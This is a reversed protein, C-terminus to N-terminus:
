VKIPFRTSALQIYFEGTEQDEQIWEAIQYYAPRLFRAPFCGERVRCYLVNSEGVRLTSPALVEPEALHKLKLLIEEGRRDVSSVVFPTDAADLLCRAGRWEVIFQGDGALRLSEYFMELIEPRFMHNGKHYWEGEEDVFIECPPLRDMTMPPAVDMLEM